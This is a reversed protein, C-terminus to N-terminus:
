FNDLRKQKFFYLKKFFLEQAFFAYYDSSVSSMSYNLLFSKTNNICTNLSNIHFILCFLEGFGIFFPQSYIGIKESM